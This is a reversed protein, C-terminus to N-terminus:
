YYTIFCNGNEEFLAKSDNMGMKYVTGTLPNMVVTNLENFGILLLANGDKLTVLVPIDLNVYYLVADLSCGTLDLVQVEELGEELISLVTYGRNLMYEANRIVGNFALMNELCVALSDKSETIEEGKIAMIQNKINRNGKYWVCKGNEDIVVGSSSYALNVANSEKTFIGEIGDKGYVYYHKERAENSQLSMERGGEFLVEKPTLFKLSERNISNKAVIQVMKQYKQTAVTEVYNRGVAATENRTIHYEETAEYTEEETKQMRKLTIQNKEIAIGTVYLHEQQYEEKLIGEVENAIRICYMPFIIEGSQGAAIDSKRAVGYILDEGMFGLPKIYEGYGAIIETKKGTSLNALILRTSQNLDAGDQWVLMKNSASVQYSSESLGAVMIQYTREELNIVYIDQGLMLYFEGMKNVYAIREIEAQLVQSSKDYPVYVMEEVTNVMSNYYYVAIGVNGEHKGRNMYGYVLFIVNGAEDINLVKVQHGDYLCRADNNGANYFSFIQALKNNTVDYSYLANGIRFAFANGTDNETLQIDQDTIGLNIRNEVIANTDKDFIQEMTREYDLLYVRDPTYRIRYYEVVQYVTKVNEEQTSVLYKLQFSGTQENLERINIKPNTERKVELDGWTVQQFSSHITVKSFTTNDGESSSELYKVLDKAAEKDFTKRHFDLVYEIKESVHYDVEQVIRTYYYITEQQKTELLLVFIYEQNPEILDKLTVSARLSESFDEYESINTKEILRSGDIGRVEFSMREIEAHFKDVVLNIKRGTMLPTLTERLLGTEITNRYGPLENIAEGSYQVYVLPYSAPSMEMTTEISDKNLAESIIYLSLIFVVIVATLRIVVKLVNKKM